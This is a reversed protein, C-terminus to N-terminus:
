APSHTLLRLGADYEALGRLYGHREEWIGDELADNWVRVCARSWDELLFAQRLTPYARTSGMM